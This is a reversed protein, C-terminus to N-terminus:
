TFISSSGALTTFIGSNVCVIVVEPTLDAKETNTVNINAQFVYQGISGSSLYSPLSLDRAPSLILMSWTTAVELGRGTAPNTKYAKGSFESWNQTSNNALSIRWLDNQTASSLLGSTNNLNVSISNIPLFSNSDKITQSTMPKRVMIIFYDPLQNLQLSSTSITSSAGVPISPNGTALSLYRPFDMYPLVNRAPVLDTPQTSLFNLLMKCNQFPQPQSSTGLSISHTYNNASSFM